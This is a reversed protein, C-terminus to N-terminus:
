DLHVSVKQRLKNLRSTSLCESKTEVLPTPQHTLPIVPFELNVFPSSLIPLSTYGDRRQVSLRTIFFPLVWILSLWFHPSSLSFSPLFLCLAVSDSPIQSLVQTFCGLYFPKRFFPLSSPFLFPQTPYAVSCRDRRQVSVSHFWFFASSHLLLDQTLYFLFYLVQWTKPCVCQIFFRSFFDLFLVATVLRIWALRYFLVKTSCHLLFCHGTVDKSLCVTHICFRVLFFSLLAGTADKSLCGTYFCTVFQPSHYNRLTGTM